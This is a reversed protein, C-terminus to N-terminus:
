DFVCVGGLAVGISGGGGVGGSGGTIGASGTVGGTGGAGVVSERIIGGGSGGGCSGAVVEIGALSGGGCFGFFFDRRPTRRAPNNSNTMVMGIRVM